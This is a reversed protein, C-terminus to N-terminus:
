HLQIRSAPVCDHRHGIEGLVLAFTSHGQRRDGVTLMEGDGIEFLKKQSQSAGTQNFALPSARASVPQSSRDGFDRNGLDHVSNLLPGPHGAAHAVIIDAADPFLFADCVIKPMGKPVV